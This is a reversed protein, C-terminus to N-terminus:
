QDEGTEFFNAPLPIRIQPKEGQLLLGGARLSKVLKSLDGQDITVGQRIDAQSRSGDMVMVAKRKAQSRGIIERLSVRLKDDRQAIAPEALLQLLERIEIAVALISETSDHM